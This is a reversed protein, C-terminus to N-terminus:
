KGILSKIRSSQEEKLFDKRTVVSFMKEDALKLNGKRLLFIGNDGVKFKPSNMYLEDESGPFLFVIKDPKNGKLSSSVEIEAELWEPNHESIFSPQNQSKKVSVVKGIVVMETTKLRATLMSDEIEKDAQKVQIDIDPYRKVDYSGIEDVGLSEGFYTARTFFIRNENQQAPGADKLRVTIQKGTFAFLNESGSIVKDVRVVAMNEPNEADINSTNLLLTTGIFIFDSQTVFDKMEATVTKKM